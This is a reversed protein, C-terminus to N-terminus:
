KRCSYNRIWYLILCWDGEKTFEQIFASPIAPILKGYYRHFSHMKAREKEKENNLIHSYKSDTNIEFM